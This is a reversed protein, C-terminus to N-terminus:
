LPFTFSSLPFLLSPTTAVADNIAALYDQLLIHGSYFPIFEVFFAPNKGNVNGEKPVSWPLSRKIPLSTGPEAV